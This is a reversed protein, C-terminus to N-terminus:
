VSRGTFPVQFDIEAFKFEIMSKDLYSAYKKKFKELGRTISEVFDKFSKQIGYEKESSFEM